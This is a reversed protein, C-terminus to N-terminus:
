CLARPAARRGADDAVDEYSQRQIEMLWEGDVRSLAADLSLVADLIEREPAHVLVRTGYAFQPRYQALASPLSGDLRGTIALLGRQLAEHVIAVLMRPMDASAAQIQMVTLIGDASAYAIYWGLAKDRVSVSRAVLEGRCTFSTLQVFLWEAVDQTYVVQLRYRLSLRGALECLAQPSLPGTQPPRGLSKLFPERWRGAVFHDALSALPKLAAVATSRWRSQRYRRVGLQALLKAPELAVTWQLSQPVAMTGGLREWMRRAEDSAGDSVSLEQPGNLVRRILAAGAARGRLEPAIFLPGLSAFRRRRGKFDFEKVQIGQFGAIGAETEIVLPPIDEAYTPSDLFLDRFAAVLGLPATREGSRMVAEYLQAVAAVDDHRFTRIKM